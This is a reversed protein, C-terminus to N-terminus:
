PAPAPAPAARVEAVAQEFGAERAGSLNFATNVLALHSFAQPFNGLLRHSDVDYEESLLGVDNRLALLREFLARAEKWRGMRAYNDALWFSCALFAGEGAPLGDAETGTHYRMVYGDRCLEREIARVTGVVRPDDPPLFGELPIRLLSADLEPAGYRQTFTQRVPDFGRALVEERIADREAEWRARPYPLGFREASRLARDFAVWAMVKSFVFQRRGAREEWIGEDPERWHTALFEVLVQEIRWAAREPANEALRAQYMTDVLEGYVDLQLQGVAGNGVRVPRSGQYGSLWPLELEPIRREGSVGYVIQLQAPDGAVTRVLWKRWACAEEQYGALYLNNLTFAADRVWCYRYDWNRVGGLQEPLSTTPAAVMGGTPAYTLAKLTILSRVVADRWPGQYQCQSVWERWFRLTDRVAQRADLAPPPELHSPYWSLTFTESKGAEAVFECVTALDEGWTERDTTLVLADPGAELTLRGDRQSVWPVISGYDFRVRLEMRMPVVGRVGEVVRVVERSHEHVPMCDVVHVTGTATTVETELVLTDRRYRRRVRKVEQAPAIKWRGNAPTGLLAAFVAGSDFRPLCLWDISGERSVLAASRTDGILAYDELHM